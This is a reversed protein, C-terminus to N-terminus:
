PTSGFTLCTESFQQDTSAVNIASSGHLLTAVAVLEAPSRFQQLPNNANTVITTVASSFHLTGQQVQNARVLRVGLWWDACPLRSGNALPDASKPSSLANVFGKCPGTISHATACEFLLVTPADLYQPATVQGASRAAQEWESATKCKQLTTPLSAFLHDAPKAGIDGKFSKTCAASPPKPKSAVGEAGFAPRDRSVAVSALLAILVLGTTGVVRVLPLLRIRLPPRM